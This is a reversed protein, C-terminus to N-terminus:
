IRTEEEQAAVGINKHSNRTLFGPRTDIITTEVGHSNTIAVRDWDQPLQQVL